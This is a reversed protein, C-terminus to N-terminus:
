VLAPQLAVLVTVILATGPGIVPLLMIHTPEVIVNDLETGPPVHALPLGSLAVTSAVVPTTVPTAM